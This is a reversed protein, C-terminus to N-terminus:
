NWYDNGAGTSPDIIVVAGPIVTERRHRRDSPLLYNTHRQHDDFDDTRRDCRLQRRVADARSAHRHRGGALFNLYDRFGLLYGPPTEFNVHVSGFGFARLNGNAVAGPATTPDARPTRTTPILSRYSSASALCRIRICSPGDFIGITWGNGRDRYGIEYRDGFGFGADPSM